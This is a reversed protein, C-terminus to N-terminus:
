SANGVSNPIEMQHIVSKLLAQTEKLQETYTSVNAHRIEQRLEDLRSHLIEFVLEYQAQNLQLHM